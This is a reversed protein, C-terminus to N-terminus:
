FQAKITLTYMTGMFDGPQPQISHIFLVLYCHKHSYVTHVHETYACMHMNASVCTCWILGEPTQVQMNKLQTNGTHRRRRWLSYTFLVTDYVFVSLLSQPQAIHHTWIQDINIVRHTYCFLGMILLQLWDLHLGTSVGLSHSWYIASLLTLASKRDNCQGCSCVNCQWFPQNNLHM